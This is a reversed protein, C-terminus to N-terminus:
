KERWKKLALIPHRLTFLIRGKKNGYKVKYRMIKRDLTSKWSAEYHHISYTNETIKEAGYDGGKPNFYETPYIVYGAISQASNDRKLGHKELIDTVITVVTEDMTFGDLADYYALIEKLLADGAKAHMILGPAVHKRSEFGMFSDETLPTIDKLLEVDTDLYVGGHQHLIDFRMYDTVFAWKKQDYAQSIYANKRVDYNSENWEIIEAHPCLRKWSDICMKIKDSKEAGGVWCYHIKMSTREGKCDHHYILFIILPLYMMNPTSYLVTDFYSQIILMLIFAITRKRKTKLRTTLVAFLAVYLVAVVIGFCAWYGLIQNHANDAGLHGNVIFPSDLTNGIGILWNSKLEEFATGWIVQRGTFLGKGLIRFDDGVWKYLIVAYFYAFLVAGVCLALFLGILWKRPLKDAKNRFIFYLTYLVAGILSSRGGFQLQGFLCLASLAYCLIRLKKEQFGESFILFLIGLMLCLFASGNTNMWLITSTDEMERNAFALLLITYLSFLGLFLRSLRESIKIKPLITLTGLFIVTNAIYELGSRHILFVGGSVALLVIWLWLLLTDMEPLVLLLMLGMYGAMAFSIFTAIMDPIQLFTTCVFMRVILLALFVIAAGQLIARRKSADRYFQVGKKQM